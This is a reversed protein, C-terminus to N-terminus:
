SLFFQRFLVLFFSMLFVLKYTYVINHQFIQIFIELIYVKNLIKFIKSTKLTRRMGAVVRKYIM